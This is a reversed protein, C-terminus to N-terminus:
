RTSWVLLAVILVAALWVGARQEFLAFGASAITVARELARFTAVGTPVPDAAWVFRQLRDALAGFDPLLPRLMRASIVLITAAVVMGITVVPDIPEIPEIPRRLLALADPIPLSLLSAVLATSFLAAIAAAIDLDPPAEGQALRRGAHALELGLVLVIVLVAAVATAPDAASAAGAALGIAGTVTWVSTAMTAMYARHPPMWVSELLAALAASVVIFLGAALAIPTGVAFAVWLTALTVDHRAVEWQEPLALSVAAAYLVTLAAAALVVYSWHLDDWGALVATALITTVIARRSARGRARARVGFAVLAVGLVVLRPILGVLPLGLASLDVSTVGLVRLLVISAAVGAPMALLGRLPEREAAALAQAPQYRWPVFPYLGAFLAAGATAALVAGASIASPSIASFALSAGGQRAILLAAVVFGQIGIAFYAAIRMASPAPAVLLMGFATVAALVAIAVTAAVLDVTVVVAIFMFGIALALSPLLRPSAASRANGLLAAAVYGFGAAIAVAGLGDLRYSAQITPGGAASWEWLARGASVSPDILQYLLLPLAVGIGAVLLATPVRWAQAIRRPAVLLAVLSLTIAAAFLAFEARV